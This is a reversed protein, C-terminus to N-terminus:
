SKESALYKYFVYPKLQKKKLNLNVSNVDDDDGSNLYRSDGRSSESLQIYFIM